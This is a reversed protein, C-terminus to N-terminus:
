PHNCHHDHHHDLLQSFQHHYRSRSEKPPHASIDPSDRFEPNREYTTPVPPNARTLPEREQCRRHCASFWLAAFCESHLRCSRFIVAAENSLVCIFYTGSGLPPSGRRKSCRAGGTSWCLLVCMARSGFCVHIESSTRRGQWKKKIELCIELRM